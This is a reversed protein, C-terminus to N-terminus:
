LVTEGGRHEGHLGQKPNPKFRKNRNGGDEGKGKPERNQHMISM